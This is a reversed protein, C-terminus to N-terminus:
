AAGGGRVARAGRAARRKGVKKEKDRLLQSKMAELAGDFAERFEPAEFAAVIRRKGLDAQLEVEELVRGDMAVRVEVDLVGRHYRGLNLLREEAHARDETGIGVHRGAFRVNM